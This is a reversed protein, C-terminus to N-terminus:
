LGMNQAAEMARQRDAGRRLPPPNRTWTASTRRWQGTRSEQVRAQVNADQDCQAAVQKTCCLEFQVSSIRCANSQGSYSAARHTCGRTFGNANQLSNTTPTTRM